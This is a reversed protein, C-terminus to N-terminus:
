LTIKKKKISLMIFFIVYSFIITFTHVLATAYFIGIFGFWEIFIIDLILNSLGGILTLITTIRGYGIPIIIGNVLIVGAIKFPILILLVNWLNKFIEDFYTPFVIQMFFPVFFISLISIGIGLFFFYFTNSSYKKIKSFNKETMLHTIYPAIVQGIIIFPILLYNLIQIIIRYTGIETIYGSMELILIDVNTYLFYGLSAFGIIIAYSLIKVSISKDFSIKKKETFIILLVFYVLYYIIQILLAGEINYLFIFFYVGPIIMLESFISILTLKKFKRLGRYIGDFINAGGMLFLLLIIFGIYIHNEKLLYNKFILLIVSVIGSLLSFILITSFIVSYIKEKNIVNYEAVYKSVSTSLGFESFIMFVSILALLYGYQGFETPTMLNAAFYFILFDLGLKSITQLTRWFFNKGHIVYNHFINM